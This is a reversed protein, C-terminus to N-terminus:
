RGITMRANVGEKAQNASDLRANLGSSKVAALLKDVGELSEAKLELVLKGSIENFDMSVPKLKVDPLSGSISSVQQLLPLFEEGGVKKGASKLRSEMRSKVNISGQASTQAALVQQDQPFVELYLTASQGWYEVAKQHFYFGEGVKLGLELLIWISAVLALPKWRRM